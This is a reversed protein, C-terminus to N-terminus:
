RILSQRKWNAGNQMSGIFPPCSDSTSDTRKNSQNDASILRVVGHRVAIIIPISCFPNIFKESSSAKNHVDSYGPGKGYVAGLIFVSSVFRGQGSLGGLCRGGCIVVFGHWASYVM